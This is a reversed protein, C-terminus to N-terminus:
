ENQVKARMRYCGSEEDKKPWELVDLVEGVKLKRGAKDDGNAEEKEEGDKKAEPLAFNSTFPIEKVVKFSCSCEQLFVTGQNGATSVWGEKGDKTSRVQVRKVGVSPEKIPGGM